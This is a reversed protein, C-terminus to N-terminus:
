DAYKRMFQNHFTSMREIVKDIHEELPLFTTRFHWTGDRQGFGSGPVVCIGTNDLLEICYLMDPAKGKEKAEEIVRRPLTVRPFAYMAGAAPQCSVGEMKNLAAVLKIARRKLSAYIEDREQIYQAYSPDGQKPPNVMLGLMIQGTVNSCLSISALKYLEDKVQQDFGQLEYYGGRKGCEGFFGKSISHYSVMQLDRYKEGMEHAVKKFSYFPFESKNYVNEQYVEDALLLVKRNHCFDVVEKMNEINLCQGTPNGPNIVVIGRPEVGASVAKTYSNELEKLSLGWNNEENLYYPVQSGNYMPITASYLPYQPIPIMVGDQPGRILLRMLVDVGASAGNTLFINNPDAAAGDREQIFQAVEDRVMEVGQSHCYPGTGNPLHNLYKKARAIADAPFAGSHNLLEPYEILSLVQRHFTLPKQQLQQPNGINCYIVEDFPHAKSKGRLEKEIQGARIVIEGRVAYQVNKLLPNLRDATVAKKAQTSYSRLAAPIGSSTVRSFYNTTRGLYYAM